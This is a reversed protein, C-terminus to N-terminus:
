ISSSRLWGDSLPSRSVRAGHYSWAAAQTTSSQTPSVTKEAIEAKTTAPASSWSAESRARMATVTAAIDAAQRAELRGSSLDSRLRAQRQSANASAIWSAAVSAM